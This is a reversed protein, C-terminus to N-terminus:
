RRCCGEPVLAVTVGIAFLFGDRAPSGVLLSTVFFAAGVGVALTAVARVILHLEHALPTRPPKATATLQAISALETAGGTARVAGEATGGTLYTGAYAHDGDGLQVPVSEGTLTSADVAAGDARTLTLDAPIRDGSALVVMDGIVVDAADITVLRGSRRVMVGAPLLDQLEQAAREAKQEQVFAFVGNVVIVVFIAVGLQPLGAVLALAGAVWLMLAFFHTLQGLLDRWRSVSPPAPLM